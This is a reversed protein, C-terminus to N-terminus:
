QYEYFSCYLECYENVEPYKITIKTNVYNLNQDRLLKYKSLLININDQLCYFIM